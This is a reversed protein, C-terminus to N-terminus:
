ERDYPIQSKFLQILQLSYNEIKDLESNMQCSLWNFYISEFQNMTRLNFYFINFSLHAPIFLEIQQKIFHKFENNQFRVPWDPFVFNLHNSYSFDDPFKNTKSNVISIDTFNTIDENTDKKNNLYELVEEKFKHAESKTSFSNFSKFVPNNLLDYVILWYLKKKSDFEVTFNETKNLLVWLDDRIDRQNKFDLNYYSKLLIKKSKSYINLEYNSELLPRLLINEVIFFTESASNIEDFKDITKELATKSMGLTKSQFIKTPMDQKPSNYLLCFNSKTKVIQYNNSKHAYLFLFKLAEHNKTFFNIDDLNEIDRSKSRVKISPGDELELIEIEWKDEIKNIESNELIIDLSSHISHDKIDLILSLREKLGSINNKNNVAKKYNFAKIRNRGLNIISKAYKSKSLLGNLEIEDVSVNEKISKQLKSNLTTDYVEGFRSLLHDIFKSKRKIYQIKTETISKLNNYFADYDDGIVNSLEGINNPIQTYYTNLNEKSIDVSFLDRINVLQSQFNAMIQDIMLLYGKLQNVQSKRLNTASNPIEFAKLGYISPFENQISYYYEIENKTFRAKTFPNDNYALGNSKTNNTLSLSDYLQSLISPDIEYTTENRIFNLKDINENFLNKELSPYRDSDFSIIDDYMKVGNKFVVMNQVDIVGDISQILEKLEFVYIENTKDNLEESKIYDDTQYPGSFVNEYSKEKLISKYEYFKLNTNLKSEIKHYIEALVSEGMAFSNITIDGSLSILDKKLIVISNFDTSISRNEMLISNVRSITDSIINNDLDDKLQVSVDFLGKIGLPNDKVPTVWANKINKEKGILIKRFDLLTTPASPFINEPRIFLNTSELDFKPDNGLLIDEINFNAKYGIDTLGFCIQELFTIGPDHYNYDTWQNGSFQQILEIGEDFLKEYDLSKSEFGEKSIFKPKIM